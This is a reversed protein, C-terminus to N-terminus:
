RDPGAAAQRKKIQKVLVERHAEMKKPLGVWLKPISVSPRHTPPAALEDLIGVVAIKLSLDQSSIAEAIRGDYQQKLSKLRRNKKRCASCNRPKSDVYFRLDEYWFKQEHASFIFEAGCGECAFTADIYWYRPCVSYDQKAIDARVATDYYIELARFFHHKPMKRPNTNGFSDM